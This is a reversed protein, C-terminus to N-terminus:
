DTSRKNASKWANRVSNKNYRSSNIEDQIEQIIEEMPREDILPNVKDSLTNDTEPKKKAAAKCAPSIKTRKIAM